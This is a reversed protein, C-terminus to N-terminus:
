PRAQSCHAQMGCPRCQGPWPSVPIPRAAGARAARIRAALDLVWERLDETNEVRHRTGDGLVVFGHPPRVRVEEEILMFYVGLQARHHRRLVRASKWEEPIITGDTKSLRDPRGILGLRFSTLTLGDLAVTTGGGLGRRRRLGRGALVLLMGLALALSAV